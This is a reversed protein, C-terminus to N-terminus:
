STSITSNYYATHVALIELLRTCNCLVTGTDPATAHLLVVRCFYKDCGANLEQIEVEVCRWAHAAEIEQDECGRCSPLSGFLTGIDVLNSGM